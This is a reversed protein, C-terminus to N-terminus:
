SVDSLLSTFRLEAAYNRNTTNRLPKARKLVTRPFQSVWPDPCVETRTRSCGSALCKSWELSTRSTVARGEPCAARHDAFHGYPQAGSIHVTRRRVLTASRM